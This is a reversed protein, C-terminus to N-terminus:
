LGLTMSLIENWSKQFDRVYKPLSPDLSIMAKYFQEPSKETDKWCYRMGHYKQRLEIYDTLQERLPKWDKNKFNCGYRVIYVMDNMIIRGVYVGIPSAIDDDSSTTFQVQVLINNREIHSERAFTITGGGHWYLKEDNRIRDLLEDKTIFNRKNVIDVFFHDKNRNEVFEDLTMTDQIELIFKINEDITEKPTGNQVIAVSKPGVFDLSFLFNCNVLMLFIISVKCFLKKM